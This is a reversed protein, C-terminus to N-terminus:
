PGNPRLVIIQGVPPQIGWPSTQLPVGIDRQLHHQYEVYHNDRRCYVASIFIIVCASIILVLIVLLGLANSLNLDGDLSWGNSTQDHGCNLEDSDDICHNVGDCFLSKSICFTNRCVANDSPCDWSPGDIVATAVLRFGDGPRSRRDATYTITLFTSTTKFPQASAINDRCSYEKISSQGYNTDSDYIKLHDNCDLKLEEFRVIFHQRASRTKFTVTCNVDIETTSM